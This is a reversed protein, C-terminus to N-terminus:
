DITFEVIVYGKQLNHAENVGKIGSYKFPASKVIEIESPCIDQAVVSLSQLGFIIGTYIAIEYQHM